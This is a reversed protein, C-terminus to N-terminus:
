RLRLVIMFLSWSTETKIEISDMKRIVSPINRLRRYLIMTSTGNAKPNIIFVIKMIANPIGRSIIVSITELTAIPTPTSSAM